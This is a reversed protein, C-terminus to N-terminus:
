LFSDRHCFFLASFINFPKKPIFFFVVFSSGLSRKKELRNSFLYDGEPKVGRTVVPSNRSYSLPSRNLSSSSSGCATGASRWLWFAAATSVPFPESSSRQSGTRVGSIQLAAFSLPFQILLAANPPSSSSPETGGQKGRPLLKVRQITTGLPDKNQHSAHHQM